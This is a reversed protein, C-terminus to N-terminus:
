GLCRGLLGILSALDVRFKAGSAMAAIHDIGAAEREIQPGKGFGVELAKAVRNEVAFTLAHRCPAILQRVIIESQQPRINGAALAISAGRVVSDDHGEANRHHTQLLAQIRWLFNSSPM